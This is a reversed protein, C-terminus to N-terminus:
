YLKHISVRLQKQKATCNHLAYVRIEEAWARAGVQEGAAKNDEGRALQLVALSLVEHHM